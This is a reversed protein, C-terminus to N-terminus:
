NLNHIEDVIVYDFNNGIIPLKDEIKKPTGVVIDKNNGYIGEDTILLPSSKTFKNFLSGVQFVLADTPVIFLVKKGIVGPYIALWTKGCSTPATILVSENRNVHEIVKIQWKDLEKPHENYFDLPYLDNYLQEFQLKKYDINDMFKSRFLM